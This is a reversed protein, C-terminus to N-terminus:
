LSYDEQAYDLAEEYTNFMKTKGCQHTKPIFHNNEFKWGIFYPTIVGRHHDEVIGVYHDKETDFIYYTDIFANSSRYDKRLM